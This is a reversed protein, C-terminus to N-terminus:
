RILSSPALNSLRLASPVTVSTENSAVPTTRVLALYPRKLQIDIPNAAVIAPGIKTIVLAALTNVQRNFNTNAFERM